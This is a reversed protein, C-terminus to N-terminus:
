LSVSARRGNRRWRRRFRDVFRGRREGELLVDLRYQLRLADETVAVPVLELAAEVHSRKARQFFAAVATRGDIALFGFSDARPNRTWRGSAAPCSYCTSRLRFLFLQVIPQDAAPLYPSRPQTLARHKVVECSM